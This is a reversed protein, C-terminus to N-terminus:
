RLVTVGETELNELLRGVYIPNNMKSSRLQDRIEDLSVEEFELFFGLFHGFLLERDDIDEPASASLEEGLINAIQQRNEDVFRRADVECPRGYYSRGRWFKEGADVHILAQNAHQVEHVFVAMVSAEYSACVFNGGCHIKRGFHKRITEVYLNIRKPLHEFSGRLTSSKKTLKDNEKRECDTVYLTLESSDGKYFFDAADVLMERSVRCRDLFRREDIITIGDM